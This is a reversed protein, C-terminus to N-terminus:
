GKGLRDGPFILHTAYINHKTLQSLTLSKLSYKQTSRLEAGGLIAGSFIIIYLGILAEAVPAINPPALGLDPNLAPQVLCMFVTGM